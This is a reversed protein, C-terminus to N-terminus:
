HCPIKAEDILYRSLLISMRKYDNSNPHHDTKLTELSKYPMIPLVFINSNLNRIKELFQEFGSNRSLENIQDPFYLILLRGPFINRLERFHDFQIELIKEKGFNELLENIATVWAFYGKEKEAITDIQGSKTAEDYIEKVREMLLENNNLFDWSNILWIVMDTNYKIGRKKFRELTYQIDYGAVGLNIIEIKKTCLSALRAELQEPYNEATNVYDGYTFSDGVTIIRFTDPPKAVNYDLTENLSDANISQKTKKTLWSQNNVIIQNAEPEYFYQLKGETQISTVISDKNIPSINLNSKSKKDSISKVIFIILIIQLLIIFIFINKKM